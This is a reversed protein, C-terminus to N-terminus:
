YIHYKGSIFVCVIVMAHKCFLIDLSDNRGRSMRNIFSSQSGLMNIYLCPIIYIVLIDKYLM